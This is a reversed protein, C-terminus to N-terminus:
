NGYRSRWLLSNVIKERYIKEKNKSNYNQWDLWATCSKECTKPRLRKDCNKCPSQM